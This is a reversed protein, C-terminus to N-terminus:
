KKRTVVKASLRRAEEGSVLLTVGLARRSVLLVSIHIVEEEM